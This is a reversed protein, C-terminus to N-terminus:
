RDGASLRPCRWLTAVQEKRQRPLDASDGIQSQSCPTPQDFSCRGQTGPRDTRTASSWACRFRVVLAVAKHLLLTQRATGLPVGGAHSDHLLPLTAGRTRLRRHAAKAVGAGAGRVAAVGLEGPIVRGRAAIEMLPPIPFRSEGAGAPPQTAAPLPWSRRDDQPRVGKPMDPVHLLPVALSLWPAWRAPARPKVLPSPESCRRERPRATYPM